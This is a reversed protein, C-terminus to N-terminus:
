SERSRQWSLFFRLIDPWTVAGLIITMGCDKSCACPLDRNLSDGSPLINGALVPVTTVVKVFLLITDLGFIVVKEVLGTTLLVVKVLM